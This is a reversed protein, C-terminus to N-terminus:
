FAFTTMVRGIWEDGSMLTGTYDNSGPACDVYTLSAQVKFGYSKQFYKSVGLTYYNPRNYFTGNNLFSYDDGEIHCYRADVSVLNKFMYGFQINYGQGLMMRNKVYNEVDQEGDIEFTSSTTGDTRVRQTIDDPVTAYSGVFEGLMSFGRYKLMFDFGYKTYNPLSEDGNEDLYLIDGNGRGRRSSMGMNYSYTVGMVLKPTLERVLDAQRYQGFNTFLGFPLFDIRGGVKLGGHDEVFVNAGDGNTIALTPKFYMGNKTRLRGDVFVGFERISGFSSTVRSREILQLTQSGMLLERNDTPTVKQGFTINLNKNINYRVWADMLMGAAEDGTESNGSLDIQFRYDIKHKAADGNIRLRARRLRFRQYLGDLNEDTYTKFEYYPQVYGRLNIKYNDGNSFTLGEGLTYYSLKQDQARMLQPLVSILISSIILYRKM